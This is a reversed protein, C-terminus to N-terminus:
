ENKRRASLIRVALALIGLAILFSPAPIGIVATTTTSGASSTNGGITFIESYGIGSSTDNYFHYKIKYDGATLDTVDINLAEWFGEATNYTLNGKIGTSIGTSNVIEFTRGDADSWEYGNSDSVTVNWLNLRGDQIFLDYNGLSIFIGEPNVMYWYGQGPAPNENDHDPTGPKTFSSVIFTYTDSSLNFDGAHFSGTGDSAIAVPIIATASDPASSNKVVATVLYGADDIGQFELEFPINPDHSFQLYHTGWFPVANETRQIPMTSIFPGDIRMSLDIDTYGYAGNGLSTNDILNAITWNRFVERFNVSYGKNVLADEISKTGNMTRQVIEKIIPAGGYHESLYLFFAFSAGYNGLVRNFDDYYWHTLSIDPNSQFGYTGGKYPNLNAFPNLGILYESFMSAGEDLWVDEDNDKFYHILHQFEHAIVDFNGSQLNTKGEVGDIHLIEANNSKPGIQQHHPDFFGAVYSGGGGSGDIIDFILIIIKNNTDVDSPAGFFSTLEPYIVTEFSDNMNNIISMPLQTLTLNSYYLANTGVKYLTANIIYFNTGSSSVDRVWFTRTTALPENVRDVSSRSDKSAEEEDFHSRISNTPSVSKKSELSNWSSLDENQSVHVYTASLSTSIM